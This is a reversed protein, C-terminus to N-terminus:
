QDNSLQEAIQHFRLNDIGHRQEMALVSDDDPLAHVSPRRTSERFQILVPAGFSGPYASLANALIGKHLPEGWGDHEYLELYREFVPWEVEAWAGWGFFGQQDSFPIELVCRMFYREGLQCLDKNFQALESRKPEPIAWVDDPLTFARDTPLGEHEHGCISCVFSEALFGEAVIQLEDRVDAASLV